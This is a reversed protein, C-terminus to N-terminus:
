RGIPWDRGILDSMCHPIDGSRMVPPLPGITSMIFATSNACNLSGHTSTVPVLGGFGGSGAFYDDQLSCIVDPPNQVMAFHGQWLRQLPAPYVHDSTATLLADADYYGDEDPHLQELIGELKLPDGNTQEYRFRGNKKYVVARGGDRDLVVVADRDAYSTIEVGECDALDKALAPPDRTAFSAFTVLGFRIWVVDRNDRLDKTLRWGRQKLHEAVPLPKAPTYSHGHDSMLTVETLGRSEWLVQNILREMRLLADRHGSAGKRTGMGATAAFYAIFERTEAKNYSRMATALEKNLISSPWLFGIGRWLTHARYQILRLHPENTEALYAGSGGVVRNHKHDFYRAEYALPAMDGLALGMCLDTMSPYTAIVRSPPNFVRLHGAQRLEQVLGYTAGDLIIVLHRSQSVDNAGLDAFSDPAGDRSRDYGFRRVQGTDDAFMFFDAQGDGDTDYAKFAHNASAAEDMASAPFEIPDSCGACLAAAAIACWVVLCYPKM